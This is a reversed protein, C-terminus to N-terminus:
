LSICMFRTSRHVPWTGAACPFAPPVAGVAPRPDDRCGGCLRSTSAVSHVTVVLFFELGAVEPDDILADGVGSMNGEATCGPGSSDSHSPADSEVDRQLLCHTFGHETHEQGQRRHERYYREGAGVLGLGDGATTTGPAELPGM